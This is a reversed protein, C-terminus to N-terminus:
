RKPRTPQRRNSARWSGRQSPHNLQGDAFRPLDDKTDFYSLRSSCWIHATPHIAEPRDLSTTCFCVLDSGDAPPSPHRGFVPAGCTPCFYRVWHDSSAFGSPSGATVRFARAPTNAWVVLPSGAFRRCISCHCYGADFIETAEFRVSRTHDDPSPHREM